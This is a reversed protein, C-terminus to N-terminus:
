KLLSNRHVTGPIPVARVVVLEPDSTTSVLEVLADQRQDTDIQLGIRTQLLVSGGVCLTVKEGVERPNSLWTGQADHDSNVTVMLGNVSIKKRKKNPV